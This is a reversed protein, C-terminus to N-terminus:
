NYKDRLKYKMDMFIITKMQGKWNFGILFSLYCAKVEYINEIKSWNDSGVNSIQTNLKCERVDMLFLKDSDLSM